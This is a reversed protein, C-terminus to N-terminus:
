KVVINTTEKVKMEDLLITVYKRSEPLSDVKANQRMQEIVEKQFGPRGTIYNTYDRLTRDFPLTIFIATRM